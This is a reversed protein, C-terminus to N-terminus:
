LLVDRSNLAAKDDLGRWTPEELAKKDAVLLDVDLTSRAAGRAALALAGILAYRVGHDDLARTVADLNM